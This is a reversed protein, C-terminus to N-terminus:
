LTQEFCTYLPLLLTFVTHGPTSTFEILGNHQNILTQAISLGLGTGEAHGTVMPLFLKEKLDEPIGPGNDIVDIKAVLPYFKEGITYNRLPRTRFTIQGDDSVEKIANRTINLIAQIIMSEDGYIDPLSPDYDALFNVNSSEVRVLSRVHELIKHINLQSKNPIDRPGLMRDVLKKLRDAERIIVHTFERDQDNNFQRDLLQAAGRIGGLPNKIEHALGRLLSRSAESQKLLHKEQEIKRHRGRSVFELLLCQDSNGFEIPSAMYDVALSQGTRVALDEEYASFPHQTKLSSTIRSFFGAEDIILEQLPRLKSRARSIQFMMEASPNMYEICLQQNIVIVASHMNELITQVSQQTPQTM